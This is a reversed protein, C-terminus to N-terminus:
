AALPPVMALARRSILVAVRGRPTFFGPWLPTQKVWREDYAVQFLV